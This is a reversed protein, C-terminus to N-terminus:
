RTGGHFKFCSICNTKSGNTLGRFEMVEMPGTCDFALIQSVPGVELPSSDGLRTLCSSDLLASCMQRCDSWQAGLLTSTEQSHCMSNMLVLEMPNVPVM